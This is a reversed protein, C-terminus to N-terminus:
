LVTNESLEQAVVYSPATHDTTDYSYSEGCCGTQLQACSSLAFAFIIAVASLSCLAIVTKM